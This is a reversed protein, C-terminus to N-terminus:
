QWCIEPKEGTTEQLYSEVEPLSGIEDILGLEKAKEGLFTSGDSFSKVKAIPINRNQAVAEVFNEYIINIDRMFLAKEEKTLPKDVSGSDKFKGASLQEYTYGDKKNKGVNSLYSSTVGISGIDSNKSAFIKDATSVAWYAGSAGTQRILGVVPKESNRVAEAIEESAVPSGGSSNIELIIAKINENDNAQKIAEVINESSVTDYNFDSSSDNESHLPIYTVLQGHLNIGAVNCNNNTITSDSVSSNPEDKFPGIIFLIYYLLLFTLFIFIIKVISVILYGLLNVESWKKFKLWLDNLKKM